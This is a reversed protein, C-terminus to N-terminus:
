SRDEEAQPAAAPQAAPPTAGEIAEPASGAGIEGKLRALELEVDGESSLRELEVTLDDKATGSVDDLAGSALLEDIAGARAQLAQTKDEARQVALGVDGMEESIGSFAEGEGQQEGALADGIAQRQGHGIIREGSLQELAGLDHEGHAQALAGDVLEAASALYGAVM